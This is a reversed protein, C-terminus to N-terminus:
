ATGETASTLKFGIGHVTVIVGKGGAASLKARLNRIHSDITRDAVQMDAGYAAEMLQDRSFVIEPRTLLTDLIAFELATLSLPM